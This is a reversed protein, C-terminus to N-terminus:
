GKVGSDRLMTYLQGVEGENSTYNDEIRFYGGPESIDQELKWYEADSLRTPLAGSSAVTSAAAPAAGARTVQVTTTPVPAPVPASATTVIPGCAVLTAFTVLLTIARPQRM